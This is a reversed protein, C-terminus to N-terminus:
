GVGSIAAPCYGMAHPLRDCVEFILSGEKTPRLHPRCRKDLEPGYQLVWRNITSHDISLGRKVMMEELDWYSLAYRCYWCVNLLIVEPRFHKWKFLLSHSM